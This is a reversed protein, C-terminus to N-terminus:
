YIARAAKAVVDKPLAYLSAVVAEAESASVPNIDIMTKKADALFAPDKLTDAFAAVLVAKREAPIGPPAVFPRALVENAVAFDLIQRQETTKAFESALPVNPLDPDKAPAAQILVNIKKEKIWNEYRAKVTSWSIGCLGDVEHRQMALTIDTTGPFGTALRIKAGFVNKYLKAFIDPDGAAGEGGATFQKTMADNWTKIPSTNWSICVTVDKTMSGLWTFKRADINTQGILAASAMGRAFTGIVTGDKPAVSFVYNAAKISGAGPMNQPIVTPNGPIHRGLHQSLVRAYLDYGGGASYGIIVSITRGKYFEAPTAAHVPAIGM